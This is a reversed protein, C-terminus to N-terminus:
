LLRAEPLYSDDGPSEHDKMEAKGWPMNERRTPLPTRDNTLFLERPSHLPMGLEQPLFVMRLSHDELREDISAASGTGAPHRGRTYSGFPFTRWEKQTKLSIRRAHLKARDKAAIFDLSKNEHHGSRRM